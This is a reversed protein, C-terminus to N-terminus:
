FGEQKTISRTLCRIGIQLDMKGLRVWDQDYLPEGTNEGDIVLTTRELKEVLSELKVETDRIEQLLAAEAEDLTRYGSSDPLQNNM